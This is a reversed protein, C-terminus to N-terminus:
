PGGGAGTTRVARARTAAGVVHGARHAVRPDHLPRRAAPGQGGDRHRCPGGTRRGGGGAAAGRRALDFRAPLRGSADHLRHQPELSPLVPLLALRTLTEAPSEARGDAREVAERLAVAGPCWARAAVAAALSRADVLHRHLAFDVACTLAEPTLVTACDVLTRLPDTVWLGGATRVLEDRGLRRVHRTLVRQEGEATRHRLVRAGTRVAVEDLLAECAGTSPDRDDILPFGHVRAATRGSAVARLLRRGQPDVCPRSRDDSALVAAYARQEADLEIGADAYVGAWLVQWDGRAVASQVCGRSMAALAERRTWVGRSSAGLLAAGTLSTAEGDLLM